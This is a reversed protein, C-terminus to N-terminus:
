IRSAAAKNHHQHKKGSALGSDSSSGELLRDHAESFESRWTHLPVIHSDDKSNRRQIEHRRVNESIQHFTENIKAIGREVPEVVHSVTYKVDDVVQSCMLVACFSMM